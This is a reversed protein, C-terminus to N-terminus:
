AGGGAPKVPSAEPTEPIAKHMCWLVGMFLVFGPLLLLTGIFMHAQGGAWRPDYLSAVGLVVVRAVNILLAVPAGLSLLVVRKWWMKTGVLAVAVGLAIFAIVMRMGSCAEAINLPHANMSSDYVTIQTGAIDTTVGIVNLVVYSAKAAFQQLPWTMMTMVKEPLTIGCALYAIPFFCWTMAKPGLMLLVLGFLTLIMALGQGFHNPIGVVFYVYSVIGTMMPILGPWFTSTRLNALQERHQWLLYLSVLPVIYAHSWDGNGKSHGHQTLFWNYFLLVFAAALVAIMVLNGTRTVRQVLTEREPKMTTM